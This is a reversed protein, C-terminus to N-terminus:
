LGGFGTGSSQNRISNAQQQLVAHNTARDDTGRRGPLVLLLALLALVGGGILTWTLWEPM